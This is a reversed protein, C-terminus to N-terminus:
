QIVTEMNFIQTSEILDNLIVMQCKKAISRLVKVTKIIEEKTVTNKFEGSCTCYERVNDRQVEGCKKCQLDQLIFGMAKRCITDILLFEVESNDYNTRCLPCNWVHIGAEITHYIDKCLDIDRTHNCAKCIIEPLVFSICPDKWEAKDSFSGVGILRLLNKKLDYVEDEVEKDLSLVKCIAKILELAPNIKMVGNIGLDLNPYENITLVKEPLKKHIKQVIQFLKQSMEGAIIKKAFEAANELSGLGLQCMTQSLSSNKRRRVRPTSPVEMETIFQYVATIYGAIVTNFSAQCSAEQPLIEMLNWNMYIEPTDDDDDSNNEEDKDDDEDNESNKKRDEITSKEKVGAFNALDLWILYEWSNNFTIEISHFLEKNRITQVVFEIYGLADNLTRKKTCIIIKNFNAFVVISGLRKFEAILQIFLKKMYTHLTRRLAPDYLLANPTKLWRYFHIIQYDAFVSRQLTVARLWSNVMSRLIKFAASCLATEDYSPIVTKGDGSVMDQLSAQPAVHFAVFSSTGDIDNVRNSQLLTNIALSEVELEVCVSSYTGSKNATCSSSEEFDTLLRNDDHESGGLDPRETPSCWLVFNNKQLNRAYFLDAGFLTADAPINGLPAAFFRCQEIMLQLIRVSKLFNKILIKAGVRQWDLTNFLNEVIQNSINVIPFDILGPMESTLSSIEMPSDVLLITAGKMENKYAKLANQIQKYIQQLSTEIRVEFSMEIPTSSVGADDKVANREIQYVSNMNPMQNTKVSDYVFIHSRKSPGLFLGWMSRQRNPAWYHYLCVYKFSEQKNLYNEFLNPKIELQNLTFTDVSDAMNRASTANVVCVCGLNLIARFILPMQTEYIGENEPQTVNEMLSQSHQQYLDEPVTYEYLHYVPRSRPLIKHCKRWLDNPGPESREKRSNVYFIRPVVLRLQHLEQDVLAWLRFLGPENTEVIQIIQWPNDLLKRQAKKFFGSITSTNTNRVIGRPGEDAQGVMRIRKRRRDGRQQAQYSWKKKHFTLWAQLEEKTKGPSPPPGFVERWSKKLNIEEDESVTRKRKTVQPRKFVGQNSTSPRVDEIDDIDISKDNNSDSEDSNQEECPKKPLFQFIETIKTQKTTANKDMLKKHLWDPHHVRPVPNPIGQMAAPITIIKQIANGLREIYYSWDLIDRIDFDQMGPDKLWKRLYHRTVSPESQFIAMPIARETVPAGHPKKAIIYKCALGADKLMQDGLFEALRKATSISTSKQAGYDELKKSMSKNECILEFLESDPLSTGKSYLVDLWYDAVEAVAKYCEELTKGKLFSEFVASQFIKILQLEGRRKVEFGKLEALSGDFNFVAYRKKLKKGEEKAAPLVMALYPGDVEFFISNESRIEYIGNEKDVLEHYVDNTFEDKVMFNLVANPYSITLKSKKPHRTKILFNDPFTGPLICWIGDTDLELPRGIKEIIERAKMIIHAGTYCVIGGMEMSFWRSGGRMVYGYFSNLICKHALQLSDYLVERNKASKIAAADNKAIAASVQQKAVKTLGKYEYRRDRFARVTDVYFSNEKQCVTQSKEEMRTVKVKKYVKKCYQTLRKKEIAAREQSSLQHFARKPGGPFVPPFKETELQQQIRQYESLDAPLFEGRWMWKMERKCLAGSRNFDCAACATEDVMASPQLRNTLIINPYMAGVDLHYIIPKELRLPQEKLNILKEKIQQAVEDFNEVLDLPIKEEEQIAHKLADNVGNILEEVASPIIKFRYPIDARFVGSELAEVHGGVYTELNLLHGDNTFKNLESEKKNPFIINARFAEVMLLSECLTGSGKRLVEDPSMPIITCLAFIFPHVYKQYLYYTAVADSVSYNALTEPQEAAFKCMEEPDIEIPNYRLKAKTVAKLGQSGVPLYSDRKVWSLCDLHSAPRSTFFGDRNKSFGILDKMNMGHIAARTEVYPWDFFDGNYSVFIHPKVDRIHDFFRRITAKENPENYVHFIGEFEPTPTYEFDEIDMSIIERNTILYGNGDIMYSIMMIQDTNADPFKLPLKTTEIDYALVIPDITELIDTRRTIIPPDTGRTKISYWCGVFINMDISVRVHHPVDHERLDIINDMHDTNKRSSTVKESDLADVLLESYFTQNKEREQNIKVAQRVDKRVKQLDVLNLFSLKLYKQLLGSLHNPLDLDEKKCLEVKSVIGNYKKLLYTSVEQETDKRCLVYFYPHFPMSIKFRTCDEELFYYDVGSVLRKDEEVIETIQMNILYGTREKIDSVRHFGYINDIHINENVKLLRNDAANERSRTEFSGQFSNKKPNESKDPRYKGTNTAM